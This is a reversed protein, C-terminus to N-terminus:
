KENIIRIFEEETLIKIGLQLAKEYKSGPEKGCIVFDTSKTVSSSIKGGMNKIIESAQERTYSNLSGTLVVTKASFPSVSVSLKKRLSEFNVGASRLREIVSRNEPYKFFGAISNAVIEGVDTIKIFDDYNANMIRDLNGFEISLEEALKLGVHRIGIGHILRSLDNKKSSEIAMRLNNASKKGMKDFSAILEYDLYYLDAVNCIIKKDVLRDILSEGLGEINMANRSAFHEVRRKIQASCSINDCRVAVEDPQQVVGAGCEPCKQPFVFPVQTGDRKSSIVKVVKPIIEGGKEILVTDGIRIDKNEIEDKNYLSARSIVSGSVPAPELIAVPTLIGTRGVQISIDIIKTTVQQAPFKYAIAWRPVKATAGLKKQWDIRNVKVVMGDIEFPLINRIGLTADCSKIVDGIGNCVTIPNNIKFGYEKLINLATSHTNVNLAGYDAVGYIILDLNRVAVEKPNLLKLSGAAANRPNAFLPLHSKERERNVAEFNKRSLYAEGRLIIKKPFESIGSDTIFLPLSKVTRINQTIDDGVYGDGRTLARVLMKNEYILSVAVGDIKYETTYEVNDVNLIRRVRSDFEMLEGRSYTNDMSLMPFEHEFATFEALPEGSVRRAPSDPTAFDPYQSELDILKKMLRDYEYDSIEPDADVYYKKDHYRIQRKLHEIQEQISILDLQDNDM